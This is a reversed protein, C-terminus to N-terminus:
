SRGSFIAQRQVLVNAEVSKLDASLSEEMIQIRSLHGEVSHLIAALRGDSFGELGGEALKQAERQLKAADGRKEQIRELLPKAAGVNRGALSFQSTLELSLRDSLESIRQARAQVNAVLRSTDRLADDRRQQAVQAIADKAAGASKLAAYTAVTSTM